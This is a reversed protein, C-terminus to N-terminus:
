MRPRPKPREDTEDQPHTANAVRGLAQQRWLTMSMQHGSAMHPKDNKTWVNWARQFNDSGFAQGNFKRWSQDLFFVVRPCELGHAIVHDRLEKIENINPKHKDLIEVMAEDGLAAELLLLRSGGAECANKLVRTYITIVNRDREHLQVAKDIVQRVLREGQATDLIDSGPKGGGTMSRGFVAQFFESPDEPLRDGPLMGPIMNHAQRLLEPDDLDTRQTMWHLTHAWNEDQQTHPAWAAFAPHAMTRADDFFLLGLRNADDRDPAYGQSQRWLARAQAFCEAPSRKGAMYLGGATPPLEYNLAVALDAFDPRITKGYEDLLKALQSIGPKGVEQYPELVAQFVRWFGGPDCMNLSRIFPFLAPSPAARKQSFFTDVEHHLVGGAMLAMFEAESSADPVEGEWAKGQAKALAVAYRKARWGDPVTEGAISSLNAPSVVGNLFDLTDQAEPQTAAKDAGSELLAIFAEHGQSLAQDITSQPLIVWKGFVEPEGGRGQDNYVFFQTALLKAAQANSTGQSTLPLEGAQELLVNIAQVTAMRFAVRAMENVNFITSRTEDIGLYLPGCESPQTMRENYWDPSGTMRPRGVM